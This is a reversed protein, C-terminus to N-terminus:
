GEDHSWATKCIADTSEASNDYFLHRKLSYKKTTYSNYPSFQLFRIQSEVSVPNRWLSEKM